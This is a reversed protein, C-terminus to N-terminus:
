EETGEGSVRCARRRGPSRLVLAPIDTMSRTWYPSPM